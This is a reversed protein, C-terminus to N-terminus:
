KYLFKTIYLTIHMMLESKNSHHSYLTTNKLNFRRHKDDEKWFHVADKDVTILLSDICDNDFRNFNDDKYKNIEIVNDLHRIEPNDNDYEDYFCFSSNTIYGNGFYLQDLNRRLEKRLSEINKVKM